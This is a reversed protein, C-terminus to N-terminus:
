KRTLNTEGVPSGIVDGTIRRRENLCRRAVATTVWGAVNEIVDSGLKGHLTLFVEQVLDEAVSRSGCAHAAVAVARAYHDRYAVEFALRVEDPAMARVTM